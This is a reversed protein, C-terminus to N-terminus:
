AKHVHIHDNPPCPRLRATLFARRSQNSKCWARTHIGQSCFAATNRLESMVMVVGKAHCTVASGRLLM